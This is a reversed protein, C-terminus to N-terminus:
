EKKDVNMDTDESPGQVIKIERSTEPPPLLEKKPASVTLVGDSLNASLKDTDVADPLTFRKEFKFKSVSNDKEVKRAGQIELTNYEKGTRPYNNKVVKMTMEDAKVGPIDVAISYHKDDDKVQHFRSSRQFLAPVMGFSPQGDHRQIENCSEENKCHKKHDRDDVFFDDDFLLSPAPVFFDDTSFLPRFFTMKPLHNFTEQPLSNMLKQTESITLM